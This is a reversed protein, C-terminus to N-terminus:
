QRVPGKSKEPLPPSTTARSIAPGIVDAILATTASTHDARLHYADFFAEDPLALLAHADILTLPARAAVRALERRHAEIRNGAPDNAALYSPRMPALVFYLWAGADRIERATAELADYCRPDLDPLSGRWVLDPVASRPLDLLIGGSPDFNLSDPSTPMSHRLEGINRAARMVGMPDLFALQTAIEGRTGLVYARAAPADFFGSETPACKEFDLPTSIMVVARVTPFLDLHFRALERAEHIKANRMGVNLAEVGPLRESSTVQDVGWLTTSSGVFLVDVARWPVERLYRLKEDFSPRNTFAPAKLRDAGSLLWLGSIVMIPVAISGLLLGALFRGARGTDFNSISSRM